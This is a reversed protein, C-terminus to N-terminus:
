KTLARASNKNSIGFDVEHTLVIFFNPMLCINKHIRQTLKPQFVRKQNKKTCFNAYKVVLFSAFLSLRFTKLLVTIFDAFFRQFGALVINATFKPRFFRLFRFFFNFQASKDM